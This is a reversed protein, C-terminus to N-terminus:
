QGKADGQGSIRMSEELARRFEEEEDFDRDEMQIPGYHTDADSGGSGQGRVESQVQAQPQQPVKAPVQPQVQSQEQAQVQIQPQTQQPTQGQVLGSADGSGEGGGLGRQSKGRFQEEALSQKKVWELVIAEEKKEREEQERRERDMRESEELAKRMEEEEEPDEGTEGNNPTSPTVIRTLGSFQRAPLPPPVGFTYTSKSAEIAKQLEKEEKASMTSQQYMQARISRQVAEEILAQHEEDTIGTFYEDIMAQALSTKEPPPQDHYEASYAPPPAGPSLVESAPPPPASAQQPWAGPPSKLEQYRAPVSQDHQPPQQAQAATHHDMQALSLRIAAEIQADEEPDGKSTQQISAQIAKELETDNSAGVAAAVGSRAQGQGSSSGNAGPTTGPSAVGKGKGLVDTKVWDRLGGKAPDEWRKEQWRAVVDKVEEKTAYEIEDRGQQARAAIIHNVWGGGRMLNRVEANLGQMAYAPISWFGAAPKLAVGGIGKAFGKLLGMAGEKEAGRMPQTVLGSIGDFLGFGFEKTAVRLGSAFDTVKEQPRVTDDNYLRPANRFGRALGLCVNMPMKMGTDVFRGVNRGADIVTEYNLAELNLQPSAAGFMNATGGPTTPHQGGSASRQNSSERFSSQRSHSPSPVSKGKGKDEAATPPFYSSGPQGEPSLAGHAQPSTGPAGNAPTDSGSTQGNAGAVNSARRGQNTKFIERPFDAVSMAMTGLDEVLAATVASIPDWPQGDTIHEKARYLKLDSYKLFGERVLVEAAFASLRVKTRRVRWVAVRSPSLSCRMGDIELFRHFSMGGEDAGKEEKIRHGLEQAKALTEPKLAEQIAAALNDATLQKNPIPDPGAGAKAIMAGWFPQDGFFPVVVTPKGAKIGAASTGAGGHHVVASVRNFLWDHPCNGLMFYQDQRPAWDAQTIDETLGIGGWGKSILARVGSKAVARLILRTLADPDDVVISGFGIYVPPPGAALFAALDPEPTYNTALDLFYFGAISIEQAWDNPKPILAPSWCYTTPIRLTNLIGPARLLSLPELDLVKERFRNIVDGLGQWTMMEVLAYSIYNTIAIDANSSQINALPHAFAKTPSWPMTFMMHLPVGLKEACHIHAFSPPNAIIADVVFPKRGMNVGAEGSVTWGDEGIFAGEANRDGKKWEKPAPGTGDGAEICSRWCGMLVEYVGKRRKTIEGTKIADFGPMLGPHKVMFAMLEAPDGGISFFELGSEEVFERFVPHTAVRVRHGYTQKLTQGLSVFPQVDGRSGVIQIVVNLRPPPTQGPQGGLSAPIYPPPLPCTAPSPPHGLLQNRLAPALLQSLRHNKESIQINIRGDEALAAGAQFGAQSLNFHDLCDGYAPPHPSTPLPSGSPSPRHTSPGPQGQQGQQGQKSPQAM